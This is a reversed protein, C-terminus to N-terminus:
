VAFKFGSVYHGSRKKTLGPRHVSSGRSAVTPIFMNEAATLKDHEDLNKLRFCIICFASCATNTFSDVTTKKKSLALMNKDCTRLFM